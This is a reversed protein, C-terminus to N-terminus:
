PKQSIPWAFKKWGGAQGGARVGHTFVIGRCGKLATPYFGPNETLGLTYDLLEGPTLKKQREDGFRVSTQGFPSRKLGTVKKMSDLASRPDNYSGPSPVPNKM